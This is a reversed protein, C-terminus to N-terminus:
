QYSDHIDISSSYCWLQRSIPTMLENAKYEDLSGIIHYVVIMAMMVMHLIPVM